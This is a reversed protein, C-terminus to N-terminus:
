LSVHKERRVDTGTSTQSRQQCFCFVLRSSKLLLLPKFVLTLIDYHTRYFCEDYLSPNECCNNRLFFQREKRVICKKKDCDCNGSNNQYFGLTEGSLNNWRKKIDEFTVRWVNVTKPRELRYSKLTKLETEISQFSSGRYLPAFSSVRM